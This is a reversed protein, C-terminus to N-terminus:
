STEPYFLSAAIQHFVYQQIKRSFLSDFIYHVHNSKESAMNATCIWYMSGAHLIQIYGNERPVIDFQQCKGISSDTLGGIHPFQEHILSMALNISEDTLM